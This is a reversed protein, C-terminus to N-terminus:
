KSADAEPHTSRFMLGSAYGRIKEFILEVTYMFGHHKYVRVVASLRDAIAFLLDLSKYYYAAMFAYYWQGKKFREFVFDMAVKPIAPDGYCVLIWNLAAKKDGGSICKFPKRYWSRSSYQDGKHTTTIKDYYNKEQFQSDCLGEREARQTLPHHPFFFLSFVRFFTPRQLKRVVEVTELLEDATEFPNDVIFDYTPLVGYKHYVKNDNLIDEIKQPRMFVDELIRRSGSQIGIHANVLGANALIKIVEETHRGPFSDCHFPLAIKEKYMVAFEAAWKSQWCFIEDCFFIYKLKPNKNKVAVLEDIVARVPRLTVKRTKHVSNICYSCRNPCGRSAFAFYYDLDAYIDGQWKGESYIYIGADGYAPYPFSDIFQRSYYFDQIKSERMEGDKLHLINPINDVTVGSWQKTRNFEACMEILTHEGEGSCVFDAIGCCHGAALFTYPGGLIIKTEDSTRFRRVTKVLEDCLSFESTLLSVAILDPREEQIYKTVFDETNKDWHNNFFFLKVDARDSLISYFLRCAYHAISGFTCILIKM